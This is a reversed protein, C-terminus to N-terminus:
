GEATALEGVTVPKLPPRIRYYGVDEVGRGLAEALVESVVPGCLRGQCPGMGARLFSKAQNPGQCGQAAVQRLAGATVEECRCVVVDDAPRLIAPPPPYLADLFPRAALHGARARRDPAALADRAAADLRGLQRLVEAAAIRGAHEAARAGGIGAGDGAVLVGDISTNGWGDLVPRFCRQGADWQHACGLARTAQQAPIVGEHLVVLPTEIRQRQGGALFSVAEVAGGGELRLESVRRWTPVGAARLQAKLLLGKGLLGWGTAGPLHRLAAWENARATTDLLGLIRSGAALCQAALLYLLPGSGALVLSDPRLAATKLLIQVAGAGMVGPLTWGPVPVPREMAGTALILARARLMSSAGGRSVWVERAPTLNWVASGPRYAAGSARLRAALGAGHAYEAGLLARLGPSAAEIGRYIQGGPAPQEDLLAVAAGREALLSAAAMGAPGAGVVIADFQESM